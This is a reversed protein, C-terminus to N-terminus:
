DDHKAKRNNDHLLQIILIIKLRRLKVSQFRRIKMPSWMTLCLITIEKSDNLVM